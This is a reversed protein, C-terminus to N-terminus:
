PGVCPSLKLFPAVEAPGSKFGIFELVTIKSALINKPYVTRAARTAVIRSLVQNSKEVLTRLFRWLKSLSATEARRCRRRIYLILPSATRPGPTNGGPAEFM